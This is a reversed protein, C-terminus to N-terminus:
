SELGNFDGRAFEVGCARSGRICKANEGRRGRGGHSAKAPAEEARGKTASGRRARRADAVGQKRIEGFAWAAEIGDLAPTKNLDVVEPRGSVM